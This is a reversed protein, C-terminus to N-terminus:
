NFRFSQADIRSVCKYRGPEFVEAGFITGWIRYQADCGIKVKFLDVYAADNDM